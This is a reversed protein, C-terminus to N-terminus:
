NDYGDGFLELLERAWQQLPKWEVPQDCWWCLTAARSLRGLRLEYTTGDLGFGDSPMLPIKLNNLQELLREMQQADIARETSTLTPEAGKYRLQLKAVPDFMLAEPSPAKGHRHWMIQTATYGTTHRYLSWSRPNSFSPLVQFQLVRTAGSVSAPQGLDLAENAKRELQKWIKLDAPEM